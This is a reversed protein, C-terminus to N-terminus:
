LSGLKRLLRLYHDNVKLNVYQKWAAPLNNAAPPGWSNLAAIATAVEAVESAQLRFDREPNVTPEPDDPDYAFGFVFLRAPTSGSRGVFGVSTAKELNSMNAVTIAGVPDGPRAVPVGVNTDQAIYEASVFHFDDPLFNQLAVTIDGMANIARTTTTGSSEGRFGRLMMHHTLGASVYEAVYRPTFDPAFDPM